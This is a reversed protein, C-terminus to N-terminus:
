EANLQEARKQNKRLYYYLYVNCMISSIVTILLTAVAAGVGGYYKILIYDFVVNLVCEICGMYFNEKVRGLMALVNGAIIRFVSSFVASVMLIRFPLVAAIYEEGYLKTMILPAFVIFIIAVAICIPALVVQMLFVNKKVWKYKNKNYAFYPYVFLMIIAPISTLVRPIVTASKYYAISVPDTTVLGVVYVDLYYLLESIGNTLAITIGYKFVEKSIKREIRPATFIRAANKKTFFLGLVIPIIFGLYRGIVAGYLGLIFILALSGILYTFSSVNTLIGFKRNEKAIRLWYKQYNLVSMIPLLFAMSILVPKGEPISLPIILAGIVTFVSFALNSAIGVNFSFKAISLRELLPRDECCFQMMATDIGLTSVIAVITVINYAYTFIGYDTSNMFRIILVNSLLMIFKNLFSSVFIDIAGRKFAKHALSKISSIYKKIIPM